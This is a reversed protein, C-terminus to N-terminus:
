GAASVSSRRRRRMTKGIMGFGVLMLAWTAPEPVADNTSVSRWGLTNMLQQDVLSMRLYQGSTAYADFPDASAGSAWDMVDAFNNNPANYARGLTKGGDVSFYVGTAAASMNLVGPATYRLLDIPSNWKWSNQSMNTTRGMLESIEHELAGVLSYAGAGPTTMGDFNWNANAGVYITGDSTPDNAASLGLAKSEATSVRFGDSLASGPATGPLAATASMSAATSASGVLASRISAYDTISGFNAVSSALAGASTDAQITIHLTVDNLYLSSFNKAAIIADAQLAATNSNFYSDLGPAFDFAITLAQAQPALVLAAAAAALGRSALHVASRKTM